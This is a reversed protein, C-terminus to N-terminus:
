AVGGHMCWLCVDAHRPPVDLQQLVRVAQGAELGADPRRHLGDGGAALAVDAHNVQRRAGPYQRGGGEGGAGAVHRGHLSPEVQREGGLLDQVGIPHTSTHPPAGGVFRHVQWDRVAQAGGGAHTSTCTATGAMGSCPAQLEVLVSHSHHVLPRRVQLQDLIHGDACVQDQGGEQQIFTRPPTVQFSPQFGADAAPLCLLRAAPSMPGAAGLATTSPTPMARWLPASAKGEQWQLWTRFGTQGGGCAARM